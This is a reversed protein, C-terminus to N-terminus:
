GRRRRRKGAREPVLDSTEPWPFPRVLVCGAVGPPDASCFVFSCGDDGTSLFPEEMTLIQGIGTNGISRGGGHEATSRGGSTRARGQKLPQLYVVFVM